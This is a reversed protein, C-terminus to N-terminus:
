IKKEYVAVLQESWAALRGGPEYLRAETTAYGDQFRLSRGRYYWWEEPVHEPPDFLHITWSVTSVPFPRDLLPLVAPPWADLLGVTAAESPGAATNHRCLGGLRAEGHGTFPFGGESWRFDMFRTFKPVVGDVYPFPESDAPFTVNEDEFGVSSFRSKGFIAQVQTCRVGACSVIGQLVTISSGRSLLNVELSVDSELAPGLFNVHVSRLPLSVERRMARLVAAVLLGGYITRGQRWVEPVQGTGDTQFNTVEDFTM